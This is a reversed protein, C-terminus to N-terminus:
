RTTSTSPPRFSTCLHKTGQQSM